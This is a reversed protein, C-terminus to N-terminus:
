RRPRSALVRGVSTNAVGPELDSCIADVTSEEMLEGLRRRFEAETLGIAPIAERPAGERRVFWAPPVVQPAAGITSSGWEFWVKWEGFVRAQDEPSPSGMDTM